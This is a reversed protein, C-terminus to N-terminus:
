IHLLKKISASKKSPKKYIQISKEPHTVSIFGSDSLYMGDITVSNDTLASLSLILEIPLKEQEKSVLYMIKLESFRAILERIYSYIDDCENSIPHFDLLRSNTGILTVFIRDDRCVKIFWDFMIAMEYSSFSDASKYQELMMRGIEPYLSLIYDASKEGIGRVKILEDRPATFVGDLTGFRQLLLHATENTNGRPIVDYLYQELVEHPQYGFFGLMSFRERMEQRRGSYISKEVEM